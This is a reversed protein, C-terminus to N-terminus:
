GDCSFWESFRRRRLRVRAYVQVEAQRRFYDNVTRVMDCMGDIIRRLERIPRLQYTFHIHLQVRRLSTVILSQFKGFM